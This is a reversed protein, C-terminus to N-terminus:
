RICARRSRRASTADAEAPGAAVEDETANAELEELRLRSRNIALRSRSIPRQFWPLRM